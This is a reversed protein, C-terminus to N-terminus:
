CAKKFISLLLLIIIWHLVQGEMKLHQWNNPTATEQQSAGLSRNGLIDMKLFNIYTGYKENNTGHIINDHLFCEVLIHCITKLEGWECRQSNQPIHPRGFRKKSSGRGTRLRTIRSLIHRPENWM